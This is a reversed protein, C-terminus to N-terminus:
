MYVLVLYYLESDSAIFLGLGLDFTMELTGYMGVWDVFPILAQSVRVILRRVYICILTDRQGVGDVISILQIGFCDHSVNAWSM